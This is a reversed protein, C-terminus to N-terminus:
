ILVNDRDFSNVIVFRSVRLFSVVMVEVLCVMSAWRAFAPNLKRSAMAGPSTKSIGRFRM